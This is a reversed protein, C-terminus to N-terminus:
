EWITGDYGCINAASSTNAIRLYVSDSVHFNTNLFAGAETATHFVGTLSTSMRAVTVPASWTINKILWSGTTSRIDMTGGTTVSEIHIILDGKAM